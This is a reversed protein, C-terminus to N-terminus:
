ETAVVEAPKDDETKAAVTADLVEVKQVNLLDVLEEQAPLTVEFSDNLNLVHERAASQSAAKVVFTKNKIKDLVRYYRTRKASRISAM